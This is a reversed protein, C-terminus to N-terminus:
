QNHLHEPMECLLAANIGGFAFCDKLFYRVTTQRPQRLLDLGACADDPTDLNVTPLLTNRWAMELTVALELAGSAGMTHGLQAKLSSVPIADGFIKRLATAEAVDGQRTGTAHASIYHINAPQLAADHLATTLCREIADADSQSTQHGSANTAYGRIEALIRAGRKLAHEREELVLVAAGEGCALGCRRADFPRIAEAPPQGPAPHALAFLQEFTGAVSPTAEDAGGALMATQRGLRIEDYAIGIAQLGSACASCPALLAGTLGLANAVNFAATHSVSKFFQQAPMNELGNDRFLAMTEFIASPSGLTSGLACGTSGNTIEEPPLGSEALADIAALTAFIAVPAMSRRLKRDISLIRERPMEIPAALLAGTAGPLDWQPMERVASDGALLREFLTARDFGLASVIGCGTIVVRPFECTM